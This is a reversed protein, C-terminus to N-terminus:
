LDWYWFGDDTGQVALEFRERTRKEQLKRNEERHHERLHTEETQYHEKLCLRTRLGSVAIAAVLGVSWSILGTSSLKQPAIFLWGALSLAAMFAFGRWSLLTGASGILVVIIVMVFALNSALYFEALSHILILVGVLSTIVHVRGPAVREHRLLIWSVMSVMGTLYALWGLIAAGTDTALVFNGASFALYIVVIAPLVKKMRAGVRIDLARQVESRPIGADALPRNNQAPLM